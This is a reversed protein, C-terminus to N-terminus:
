NEQHSPFALMTPESIRVWLEIPQGDFDGCLSFSNNLLLWTQRDTILLTLSLRPIFGVDTCGTAM